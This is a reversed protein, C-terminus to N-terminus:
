NVVSFRIHELDVVEIHEVVLVTKVLVRADLLLPRRAGPPGNSRFPLHYTRTELRGSIKVTKGNLAKVAELRPGYTGIELEYTKDGAIIKWNPLADDDWVSSPTRGISGVVGQVDIRVTKQVSSGQSPAIDTVRLILVGAGPEPPLCGWDAEMFRG